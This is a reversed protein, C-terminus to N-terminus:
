NQRFIGIKMMYAMDRLGALYARANDYTFRLDSGSVEDAGTTGTLRFKFGFLGDEVIVYIVSPIHLELFGAFWRLQDLESGNAPYPPEAEHSYDEPAEGAPVPRRLSIHIAEHWEVPNTM